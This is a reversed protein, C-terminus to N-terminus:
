KGLQRNKEACIVAAETVASRFGAKELCRVAEITTGAPSCVMDKLEGPHMGTKLALAASGMVANEAFELAAKRPMGEAVGADALADIFMFVYAPASGCIGVVADIWSEDCIKVNGVASFLRLANETQEETVNRGPCLATMGMGVMAPTNPMARIVPREQGLMQSLKELSLGAAISIIVTDAPIKERIEECLKPMGQPKVALFLYQAGCAEFNDKFCRVGQKEFLGFNKGSRDCVVTKEPSVLGNDLVGKLIASGMNGCGIVGLTFM